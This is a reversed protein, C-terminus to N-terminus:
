MWLAAIPDTYFAVKKSVSCREGRRRCRGDPRGASPQTRVALPSGCKTGDCRSWWIALLPKLGKPQESLVPMLADAPITVSALMTEPKRNRITLKLGDADAV